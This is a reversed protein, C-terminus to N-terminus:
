ELQLLSFFFTLVNERKVRFTSCQVVCVCVCNVVLLYLHMSWSLPVLDKGIYYMKVFMCVFM